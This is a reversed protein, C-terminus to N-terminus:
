RSGGAEGGKKAGFGERALRTAMNKRVRDYEEQTMQGSDRMKRLDEMIGGAAHQEGALLRRRMLMVLLGGGIIVVMLVAVWVIVQSPDAKGPAAPASEQGILAWQMM